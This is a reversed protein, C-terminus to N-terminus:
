FPFGVSFHLTGSPDGERPNLNRGYELRVPGVITQYRIGLGVSYLREDFPYDELEAAQGLADGFLVLSWTNTLAQEIEVNLLMYTEAGIFRGDPGRPAAEDKQYGRISTDGGPYFRRNVPILQGAPAGLTTIAGHTFGVHIWRSRGWSTHYSVGAEFAQYDVEGGLSESALEAQAFWRYGRRPRLPNDRREQTLGLDISAVRVNEEDVESTTLANNQNSLSQYTYGIRGDAKIWSIRRRLGVTGGYEEREFAEEERRLGFLRATGDVSEGFLEPVSYNYEGRTSKISQVLLLRSQHARGFLNTQQLEVGGRLQEYSGYGLLLSADWRPLERVTFVPDRVGGMEPEYRVDVREFVGLRALRYRSHEMVLPNLPDGEKARVRRLLISERTNTNGEFRVEGVQVAPGPTVQITVAVDRVGDIPRAAKPEVHITVDAYGRKYFARRVQEAADQQWHYSWPKKLRFKGPNVDVDGAGEVQVAKVIWRPGERVDVAVDVRGTRRNETVVSAKVVVEAYGKQRLADQLDDESRRLRGPSYARAEAGVLPVDSPRFYGRAANEKIAALGTFTVADIVSRVGTEVEFRVAKIKLSRPLLTELSSDFTFTDTRGDVLTLRAKVAPELFGERTLASVIIFVADEVTSAGMVPGREEGLVRELAIRQERNDWWGLGRVSLEAPEPQREKAFGDGVPMLLMACLLACRGVRKMSIDESGRM